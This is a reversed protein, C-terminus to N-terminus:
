RILILKKTDTFNAATLRYVYIGSPLKAANFEVSYYGPEKREDVLNAVENGLIDFVKLAVMGASKISYGILTSPNFPNPYNQSLNYNYSLDSFSSTNTKNASNLGGGVLSNPAYESFGIMVTSSYTSYHNNYDVARMRYEAYYREAGAGQVESDIFETVSGGRTAVVSWSSWPGDLLKIRREISYANTAKIFVDPENNLQWTLKAYVNNGQQYPQVALGQPALPIADYQRYRIYNDSYRKWTVFVDNSTNTLGKSVLDFSQNGDLTFTGSWSGDFSRHFLNQNGTVDVYVVQLKDNYTKCINFATPDELIHYDVITGSSSSWSGSLTRYKYALHYSVNPFQIFLKGYVAYIYNGRVELREAMSEDTTSIYQPTQWNGNYRDRTRMAGSTQVGAKNNYSVHIRNESFVVTPAGGVEYQNYDTVNKYDDWLHETTLNYYYTEFYPDSDEAAWVLHVGEGLEYVADIGNCENSGIDLDLNSNYIWSSGGNTSYKVKIDSGAKYFAYVIDNTGTITPFDGNSELTTNSIVVTGLSNINYYVINGNARKILLHNGNKNTFLDMKELTSESITTPVTSNWGQGFSFSYFLAILIILRKM